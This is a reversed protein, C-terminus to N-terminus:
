AVCSLAIVVLLTRILFSSSDTSSYKSHRTASLLFICWTHAGFRQAIHDSVPKQYLM